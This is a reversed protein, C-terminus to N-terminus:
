VIRGECLNENIIRTIRANVLRKKLGKVTPVKITIYNSTTILSHKENEEILIGKLIKERFRERYKLKKERNLERFELVRKRLTKAPVQEMKGAKTGPRPSFPFSHIYNLRSDKVFDYTAMYEKEGEGPFGLLIDAGYNADPFFSAFDELIKLYDRVKSSRNMKRLIADSGSQFSFHFSHAIKEMGGLERIFGFDIFRPDLSSLRILDIDKIGAISRILELINRRPFLDYGYSSLNIGTLIIERYGLSAFFKAKEFLEEPPFSVSKGRLSPVICFSCNFNCGDQIKLFLRSRFSSHFIVNETFPFKEMVRETLNKKEVNDLFTYNTFRQSLFGNNNSVTCGAVVWPINSNKYTRSLFRQVDKEAKETVSCTNLIGFEAEAIDDTLRYGHTELETIWEQVEAQNTRCGFYSVYFNM